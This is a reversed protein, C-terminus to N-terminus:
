CSAASGVYERPDVSADINYRRAIRAVRVGDDALTAMPEHRHILKEVIAEDQVPVVADSERDREVARPELADFGCLEGPSFTFM